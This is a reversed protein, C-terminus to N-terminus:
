PLVFWIIIKVKKEIKIRRETVVNKHAVKKIVIIVILSKRTLIRSHLLIIQHGRRITQLISQKTRIMIGAILLEIVKLVV